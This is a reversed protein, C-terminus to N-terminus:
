CANGAIYGTSFAIQLNFGGTFADVDLVEGAFFINKIKKSEMTKPNIEKVSVGGSTVIGEEIPRLSMIDFTLRKLTSLLRKRENVNIENVKKFPDIQSKKIIINVLARPLLDNLSNRFDKNKNQAFDRLLRLDLEDDNLAPKLDISLKLFSVDLRNIISSASLIVPGSVGFHTFLMEGFDSFIMKEGNFISVKVNKLSVGQLQKFEDGKLNIGTLASTLPVISHGLKKAFTYGDGTSGTMPYSKGGTCVIVKDCLFIGDETKLGYVSNENILIDEVNSNLLVKVKNKALLKEFCKTIDSAKESMPFVRNGRETKLIVGNSSILNILDAPTFSYMTSILFKRNTVVHQLFEEVDCDNTVNCRGKGTIYIKKGLKENKEFLYVENNFSAAYAAMLGAAGGGIIAVKSM